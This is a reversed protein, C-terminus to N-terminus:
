IKIYTDKSGWVVPLARRSVVSVSTLMAGVRRDVRLAESLINVETEERDAVVIMGLSAASNAFGLNAGFIRRRRGECTM